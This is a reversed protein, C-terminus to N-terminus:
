HMRAPFTDFKGSHPCCGQHPHMQLVPRGQSDFPAEAQASKDKASSQRMLPLRTFYLGRLRYSPHVVVRVVVVVFVAMVVAVHMMRVSVIVM